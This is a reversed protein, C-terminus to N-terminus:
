ECENEIEKLIPFLNYINERISEAVKRHELQTKEDCRVMCYHYFDRLTGAVYLKTTIGVPLVSRAVEKAIGAFLAWTYAKKAIEYVERQKSYWESVRKDCLAIPVSKQRDTEHRGRATRVECEQESVDAYRQSNHTIIGECVYNHSTHEVELDYTEVEGYYDISKIKRYVISLRADKRERETKIKHQEKSLVQLNEVKFALDPRAYVPLIHDIEATNIDIIKGSIACKYDQKILLEQKYGICWQAVKRRWSLTESTFNGTKYLNNEKGKRSKLRMKARVEEIRYKGYNPQLESPLGKNWISTYSAVEARSYQLNHIRLWKRITHITTSALDAIGRLGSKTVISFNKAEKLWDYNQYLPVGNTAIFDNEIDIEGLRKFGEFTLLKHDKTCIISCPKTNNGVELVMKYVHKKGTSFVEKIKAPILTKSNEDYVRVLNDSRGLYKSKYRKYLDCIKVKRVKGCAMLTTVRQNGEICLEQFHLSKHRIMQQSVDRTTYVEFNLSIQELPSWEKRRILSKFLKEGTAHNFQNATSSVRAHHILMELPTRVGELCPMTYGTLIAHHLKM